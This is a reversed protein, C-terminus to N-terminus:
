EDGLEEVIHLGLTRSPYWRRSAKAGATKELMEQTKTKWNHANKGTFMGAQEARERTYTYRMAQPYKRHKTEWTAKTDDSEICVFYECNPDTEALSRLLNASAFPRDQVIHFGALAAAMGLGMERGLSIVAYVGRESGYQGYLRSNFLV